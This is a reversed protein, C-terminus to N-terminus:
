RTNVMTQLTDRLLAPHHLDCRRLIGGLLAAAPYLWVRSNGDGALNSKAPRRRIFETLNKTAGVWVSGDSLVVWWLDSRTVALGSPRDAKPNHHEFALQGTSLARRDLKVESRFLTSPPLLSVFDSGEGPTEDTPFGALTLLDCVLREAGRGRRRSRLFNNM